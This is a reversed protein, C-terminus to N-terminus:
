VNTLRDAQPGAYWAGSESESKSKKTDTQSKPEKTEKVSSSEKADKVEKGKEKPEKQQEEAGESAEEAPTFVIGYILFLTATAGFALGMIWFWQRKTLVSIACIAIAVQFLTVSRALMEHREFHEDSELEHQKAKVQLAVMKDKEERVKDIDAKAPTKDFAKLLDIKGQIITAKENKAQYYSWQDNAKIHDIVAKNAHYGALLAAVAALAALLATSLAVATIWKEQSHNAEHHVAEHLHETPVEIEEM